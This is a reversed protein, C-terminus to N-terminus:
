TNPQTRTPEPIHNLPLTLDGPRVLRPPRTSPMTPCSQYTTQSSAVSFRELRRNIKVAGSLVGRCLVWRHWQPASKRFSDSPEGFFDSSIEASIILPNRHFRVTEPASIPCNRGNPHRRDSQSRRCSIMFGFGAGEETRGASAMRGAAKKAACRVQRPQRGIEGADRGWAPRVPRGPIGDGGPGGM